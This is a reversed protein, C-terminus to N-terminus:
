EKKQVEQISSEQKSMANMRKENKSTFDINKKKEKQKEERSM